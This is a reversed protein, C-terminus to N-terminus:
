PDIVIRVGMSTHDIENNMLNIPLLPHAKSICTWM